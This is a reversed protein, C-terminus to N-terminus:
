TFDRFSSSTVETICDILWRRGVTRSRVGRLLRVFVCEALGSTKASLKNRYALREFRFIAAEVNHLQQWKKHSKAVLLRVHRLKTQPM